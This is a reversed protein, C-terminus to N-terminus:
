AGWLKFRKFLRIVSESDIYDRCYLWMVTKKTIAKM